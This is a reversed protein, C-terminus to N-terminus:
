SGGLNIDTGVKGDVLLIDYTLVEQVTQRRLSSLGEVTTTEM